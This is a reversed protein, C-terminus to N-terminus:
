RLYKELVQEPKPHFYYGRSDSFADGRFHNCWDGPVDNMECVQEFFHRQCHATWRRLTDKREGPKMLGLREAEVYFWRANFRGPLRGEPDTEEARGTENLWLGTTVPLGTEPDRKVHRDWWALYQVLIPRLEADVVLWRNGKRKEPFKEGQANVREPLYVLQGGQEFSPLHPHEPFGRRFGGPAALGVPPTLGFSAYRDLRLMENPRLAWKASAAFFARRAPHTTGNVLRMMEQPTPNRKREGAEEKPGEEDYWEEVIDRVFNVHVVGVRALYSFFRNLAQLRKQMGQISRRFLPCEACNERAAQAALKYGEWAGAKCMARVPQRVTLQQFNACYSSEAFHLYGWVEAKTWKRVPIEAGEPTQFYRVLDRISYGYSQRTGEALKGELGRLCAEALEMNTVDLRVSPRVSVSQVRARARPDLSM